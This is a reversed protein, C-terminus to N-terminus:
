HAGLYPVVVFILFSSVAGLMLLGVLGFAFIYAKISAKRKYTRRVKEKAVQEQHQTRLDQLNDELRAIQKRAWIIVEPNKGFQFVRHLCYLAQARDPALRAMLIWAEVNEPDERLIDELADRAAFHEGQQALELVRQMRELRKLYSLDALKNEM